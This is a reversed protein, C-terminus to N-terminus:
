QCNSPKTTTATLAGNLVTIYNIGATGNSNGMELCGPLGSAGILITSSPSAVQLSTAPTTTGVSINGAVLTETANGLTGNGIAVTGAALRSIGTDLNSSGVPTATPSNTWALLHDSTWQDVFGNSFAKTYDGARISVSHGDCGVYWSYNGLNADGGIAAIIPDGTDNGDPVCQSNAVFAAATGFPSSAVVQLEPELQVLGYTVNVTGPNVSLSYSITTSGVAVLQFTGNYGSSVGSITVLSGANYNNTQGTRLTCTAQGSLWTCQQIQFADLNSMAGVSPDPVPAVEFPNASNARVIGLISSTSIENDTFSTTSSLTFRNGITLNGFLSTTANGNGMTIGTATSAGISITSPTDIVIGSTDGSISTGSFTLAAFAPGATLALVGFVIGAILPWTFHSESSSKM